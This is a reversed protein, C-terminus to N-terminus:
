PQERYAWEWQAWLHNRMQLHDLGCYRSFELQLIRHCDICYMRGPVRDPVEVTHLYTFIPGGCQCIKANAGPIAEVIRAGTAASITVWTHWGQAQLDSRFVHSGEWRQYFRPKV